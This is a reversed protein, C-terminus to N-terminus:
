WGLKGLVFSSGGWILIATSLSGVFPVGKRMCAIIVFLLIATPVLGKVVGTLFEIVEPKPQHGM